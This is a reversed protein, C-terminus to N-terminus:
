VWFANKGIVYGKQEIFQQLEELNDPYRAILILEDTINEPSLIRKGFLPANIKEFNLDYVNFPYNQQQLYEACIKGKTGMGIIGISSANPNFHTFWKLKLRFFAQQQYNESNRSTRLPHERWFLTIENISKISFGHKMWLFCLDYDEPYNLTSFLDYSRFEETRGMWNPSAVICERYIQEYFDDKEVRENLWNEYKQYGESITEDSFYKVKGTVITKKPQNQLFDSMSQLRNELMKDDDMRTIYQGKAQQFAQNLAAVIGQKENKFVRIRNDKHSFNRVIEFSDDESHDDLVILEWDTLTQKQISEITQEIWNSANKMPM